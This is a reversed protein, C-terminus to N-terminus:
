APEGVFVFAVRKGKLYKCCAHIMFLVMCDSHGECPSEEKSQSPRKLRTQVLSPLPDLSATLHVAFSGERGKGPKCPAPIM